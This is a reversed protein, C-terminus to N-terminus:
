SRPTCKFGCALHREELNLKYTNLFLFVPTVCMLLYQNVVSGTSVQYSQFITSLSKIRLMSPFKEYDKTM